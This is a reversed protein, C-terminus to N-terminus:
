RHKTGEKSTKKLYRIFGFLMKEIVQTQQSLDGFAEADLCDAEKARHLQSRLESASGGAIYLFQIFEKKGGRGFGEAINDMISGSSRKIQRVLDYDTGFKNARTAQNIRHTLGKARQWVEM